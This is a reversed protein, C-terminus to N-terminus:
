LTLPNPEMEIMQANQEESQQCIRPPIIVEGQSHDRAAKERNPASGSQTAWQDPQSASQETERNPASHPSTRVHPSGLSSWDTFGPLYTQPSTTGPETPETEILDHSVPPINVHLADTATVVPLETTNRQESVMTFFHRTVAIADERSLERTVEVIRSPQVWPSSGSIAKPNTELNEAAPPVVNSPMSRGEDIIQQTNEREENGGVAPPLDNLSGEPTVNLTSDTRVDDYMPATLTLHRGITTYLWPM